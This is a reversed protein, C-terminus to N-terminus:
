GYDPCLEIYVYKLSVLLQLVLDSWIGNRPFFMIITVISHSNWVLKRFTIKTGWHKEM